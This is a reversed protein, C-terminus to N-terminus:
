GYARPQAECDFWKWFETTMWGQSDFPDLKCVWLYGDDEGKVLPALTEHWRKATNRTAIVWLSENIRYWDEAQDLQQKIEDFTRGKAPRLHVVYFQELAIERAGLVCASGM